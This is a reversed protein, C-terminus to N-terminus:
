EFASMSASEEDTLKLTSKSMASRTPQCIITFGHIRPNAREQEGHSSHHDCHHSWCSQNAPRHGPAASYTARRLRGDLPLATEIDLIWARKVPPRPTYDLHGRLWAMGAGEEIKELGRRVADESVVEKMGLLPPNVPDCRLVTRHAYRWHGALVSPMVTGLADGKALRM